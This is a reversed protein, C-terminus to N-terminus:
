RQCPYSADPVNFLGALLRCSIVETQGGGFLNSVYCNKQPKPTFKVFYSEKDHYKM